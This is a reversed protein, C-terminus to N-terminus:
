GSDPGEPQRAIWFQILTLGVALVPPGIFLGIFGFAIVGGFVGLVILLVPLRSSRSILYPKVFNDITSIALLGWLAMFVAWGTQGDFALWAAATGWVLPPGVPIISAAFTAAAFLFPAPVGAILFGALAM